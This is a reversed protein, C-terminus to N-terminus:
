FTQSSIIDRGASPSCLLVPQTIRSAEDKGFSWQRLAPLEQEFFTDADTVAQDFSGPLARDLVARYGPGCTGRLFTEIAAARDGARFQRVAVDVFVRSTSASPVSMFAPELAAVSQVAKPADLALQLAINASSSHGAVHARAIGLHDLLLRGHAAQQRFSVPATVRSSGACGVRHYHVLRFRSTLVPERFFLTFWGAFIGPHILLVPEGNGHVEYELEVDGVSAKTLRTVFSGEERRNM